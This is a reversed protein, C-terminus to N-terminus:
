KMSYGIFPEKHQILCDFPPKRLFRFLDNLTGGASQVQSTTRLRICDRQEKEGFNAM